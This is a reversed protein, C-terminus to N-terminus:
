RIVFNCLFCSHALDLGTAHADLSWLPFRSYFSFTYLFADNLCGSNLLRVKQGEKVTILTIFYRSIVTHILLCSWFMWRTHEKRRIAKHYANLKTGLLVAAFIFRIAPPSFISFALMILECSHERRGPQTGPNLPQLILVQLNVTIVQSCGDLCRHWRSSCCRQEEVQSLQWEGWSM